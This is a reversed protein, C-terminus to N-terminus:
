GNSPPPADSPNPPADSNMTAITEFHQLKDFNRLLPLDIFLEPHAALEAPPDAPAHTKVHQVAAVRPAAAVRTPASATASPATAPPATPTSIAGRVAVVALVAVAGTAVAPLTLRLRDLLRRAVRGEAEDAALTRVRRLVQQEVRAPVDTETPLRGLMALVGETSVLEARCPACRALHRDLAHRQREALRGDTAGIM